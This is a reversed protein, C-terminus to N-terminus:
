GAIAASGVSRIPYFMSESLLAKRALASAITRPRIRLSRTPVIETYALLSGGISRLAVAFPQQHRQNIMITTLRSRGPAVASSRGAITPATAEYIAPRGRWATWSARASRILPESSCSPSAAPRRRFSWCWMAPVPLSRAKATNLNILEFKTPQEIPLDAPKAGKLIKDVYKAARRCIDEISPGDARCNPRKRLSASM